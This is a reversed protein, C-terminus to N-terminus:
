AAMRRALEQRLAAPEVGAATLVRLAANDSQGIVGLLPSSLAQRARAWNAWTL